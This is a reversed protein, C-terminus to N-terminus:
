PLPAGIARELTGVADQLAGATELSRLRVDRSAQMAQLLATIGTQGLRYSDEAMREVLTAQPLVENAYRLYALRPAEAVAAASTVDGTLRNVLAERQAGLQVLTSEELQM